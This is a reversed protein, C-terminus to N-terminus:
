LGRMFLAAKGAAREEIAEPLTQEQYQRGLYEIVELLEDRDMDEVPKGRFSMLSYNMTAYMRDTVNRVLYPTAYVTDLTAYPIDPSSFNPPLHMVMELPPM